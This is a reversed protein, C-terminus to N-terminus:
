CADADNCTISKRNFAGGGFRNPDAEAAWQISCGDPFCQFVQRMREVLLWLNSGAEQSSQLQKCGPLQQQDSSPNLFVRTM